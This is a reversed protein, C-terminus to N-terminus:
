VNARELMPQADLSVVAWVRAAGVRPCGAGDNRVAIPGQALVLIEGSGLDREDAKRETADTASEALRAGRCGRRGPDRHRRRSRLLQRKAVAYVEEQSRDTLIHREVCSQVRETVETGSM